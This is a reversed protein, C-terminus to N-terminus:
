DVVRTIWWIEGGLVVDIGINFGIRVGVQCGPFVVELLRNRLVLKQSLTLHDGSGRGRDKSRITIGRSTRRMDGGGDQKNENYSEIRTMDGKHSPDTQTYYSRTPYIRKKNTM